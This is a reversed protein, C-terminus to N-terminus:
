LSPSSEVISPVPHQLVGNVLLEDWLCQEVPSIICWLHKSILAWTKEHAMYVMCGYM